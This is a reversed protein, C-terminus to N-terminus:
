FWCVIEYCLNKCKQSKKPSIQGEFCSEAASGRGEESSLGGNKRSCDMDKSETSHHM